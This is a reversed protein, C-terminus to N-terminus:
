CMKILGVLKMPISFEVIVSRVSDCTREVDIFLMIYQGMISGNKRWYKVFASYRVLPQDIVDFYVSIIGIIEDVYPTLRFALINSSIKYTPYCHYREIIVVTMKLM